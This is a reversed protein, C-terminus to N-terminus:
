KTMIEVRLTTEGVQILDGSRIPEKGAESILLGNLYTGRLSGLDEIRYQGDEIWIRAHPRSVTLDPTLDLDVALDESPRGILITSVDYDIIQEKGRYAYVLRIMKQSNDAQSFASVYRVLQTMIDSDSAVANSHQILRGGPESRRELGIRLAEILRGVGDKEFLDVWHFGALEEPMPCNELRVPILYVDTRLMKELRKLAEKIEVQIIGRRNASRKSLCALFFDSAHVARRIAIEWQEGPIIDKVDMWPKFGAKSLRQYLGEVKDRDARAYNLFVQPKM